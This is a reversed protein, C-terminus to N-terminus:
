TRTNFSLGFGLESVSDSGLEFGCEGCVEMWRDPEDSVAAFWTEPGVSLVRAYM